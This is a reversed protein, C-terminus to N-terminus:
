ALCLFRASIWALAMDKAKRVVPFRAGSGEVISVAAMVRNVALFTVGKLVKEVLGEDM